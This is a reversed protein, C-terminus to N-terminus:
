PKSVDGVSELKDDSATARRTSPDPAVLLPQMWVAGPDVDVLLAKAMLSLPVALLAGLPGLVWAWFVLSVFTLSPSLGVADGMVKPQIISQIVFNIVSYAVIVVLMLEPGGELLALLAPPVLGIVFGVNPIYNTIFALLGWLLPAPVGLAWLLVTDIVAVILGFITSVVLYTRTGQAFATLAQSVQPRTEAVLALRRPFWAADLTLFLLLAVIFFLNSFVGLLGSLLSTVFGSFRGLDFKSLLETTESEEVGLSKLGAQADDVLAGFDETYQPLLQALRAGAVILSLTLLVIIGYVLLLAVVTCLWEPWRRARLWPRVPHVAVTLILALFAPAIIGSIVHMGWVTISAAALGLLILLGRPLLPQEDAPATTM